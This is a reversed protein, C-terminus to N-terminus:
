FPLEDDEMPQEKESPEDMEEDSDKYIFVTDKGTINRHETVSYYKEGTLEFYREVIRLYLPDALYSNSVDVRENFSQPDAIVGTEVMLSAQDEDFEAFEDQAERQHREQEIELGRDVFYSDTQMNLITNEIITEETAKALMKEARVGNIKFCNVTQNSLYNMGAEFNAITLKDDACIVLYPANQELEDVFAFDKKDCVSIYNNRGQITIINKKLFSLHNIIEDFIRSLEQNMKEHNKFSEEIHKTIGTAYSLYGPDFCLGTIFMTSNGIYRAYEYQGIQQQLALQIGDITKKDRITLVKEKQTIKHRLIM